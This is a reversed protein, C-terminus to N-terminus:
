KLPDDGTTENYWYQFNLSIDMAVVDAASQDLGLEGMSSPFCGVLVYTDTITQLDNDLLDIRVNYDTVKKNGGGNKSLDSFEDMWKMLAKKISLENDVRVNISWEGGYDANTPIKFNQGFYPVDVPNITKGPLSTSTAFFQINDLNPVTVQFQYGLRLGTSKMQAMFENLGYVSNGM